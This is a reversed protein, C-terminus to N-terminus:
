GTDNRGKSFGGGIRHPLHPFDFTTDARRHGRRHQRAETLALPEKWEGGYQLCVWEGHIRTGQRSSGLVRPPAVEAM